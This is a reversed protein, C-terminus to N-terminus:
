TIDKSLKLKTITSQLTVKKYILYSSKFNKTVKNKLILYGTLVNLKTPNFIFLFHRSVKKIKKNDLYM